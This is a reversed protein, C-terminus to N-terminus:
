NEVLADLIDGSGELPPPAKQDLTSMILLDALEEGRKPEQRSRAEVEAALRLISSLRGSDGGRAGDGAPKSRGTGKGSTEARDALTMRLVMKGPMDAPCSM